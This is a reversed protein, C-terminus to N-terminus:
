SHQCTRAYHGYQKCKGCKRGKTNKTEEEVITNDTIMNVKTSDKLVQKGLTKVSSKFRKPPRGKHKTIAPNNIDAFTEQTEQIEINKNHTDYIFSKLLNVLEHQMNAKLACDIAKKSLGFLEAYIAKTSKIALNSVHSDVRFSFFHEFTISKEMGVRDEIQTGCILIPSLNDLQINIDLYWRSPIINIHFTACQSYTSVRFFHQCILGGKNILLLCTCLHTGEDLLVVYHGIGQTGTARVFWVELIVEPPINKILSKFLIQQVDQKQERIGNSIEKNDIEVDILNQWETIRNIDYCVSQNMQSRQKRLMVPTLFTKMINDVFSFFRTNLMPMGITPITNRELEFYEFHEENKVHDKISLLLDCLSTARNVKDHIHKNISEIRQTSQAGTTFKNGLKGKLKKRLNLDIHFICLLHKTDPYIEKISQIMSPDSDTFIVKPSIGTETLIADFLWQYTNLTEDDIIAFAVIRSKYNNDIVAMICLMMQFRNTNYTTDIITVDNYKNYLKRQTPSMWLLSKLKRSIPDLWLKVIWLPDSDKWKMLLELMQSADTDGPNNKQRFQYVANYLDKKYIPQDPYDHKLLPYISASDMQGQIVYKEIDALMKPM